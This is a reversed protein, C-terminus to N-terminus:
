TTLIPWSRSSRRSRFITRGSCLSPAGGPLRLGSRSSRCRILRRTSSMVLIETLWAAIRVGRRADHVHLVRMLSLWILFFLLDIFFDDGEIEFHVQRGVFAFGAGLERLTDVMQNMLAQELDREAIGASLGLFDFVYPDKALQQALESDTTSLHEVFNSPAAGVREHARSMIQNLLVNRSWGHTDTAAAYWDRVTPDDLKELLTIVHGWPLRGIPQRVIANEPWATAFARMAYVNTRRLGTMEPFEARLDAALQDIVKAGWGAAEQRVRIADGIRWYLGLLETNVVRHACLQASRVQAKLDALLIAYDPPL